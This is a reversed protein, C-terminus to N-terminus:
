QARPPASPQARPAPSRSRSASRAPHATARREPHSPTAPPASAPPQRSLQIVALVGRHDTGPVRIIRSERVTASDQSVLVHDLRMVSPIWRGAPWTFGPWRRRQAADACDLFGAALLDRFPRHDRSANFDGAVIQQGDTSALTSRIAALEQQWRRVNRRVPAKPHVGTVTVPWGEVPQIRARPAAAVMGPVPPLPTLPWRAWLGTGRAKPRPDLHCYPLLTDIGADVLRHAMGPTLEQVALVDVRHREIARVVAAPDASGGLVNLSLIRLTLAGPGPDPLQEPVPATERVARRAPPLQWALLTVAPIALLLALWWSDAAAVAAGAFAALTALPALAALRPCPDPPEGGAARAVLPPIAVATLAVALVASV